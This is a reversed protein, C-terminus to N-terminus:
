EPASVDWIKITNGFSTALRKGDPSFIVSMVRADGEITTRTKGRPMEWIRVTGKLDGSALLKGDPNYALASVVDAHGKLVADQQDSDLNWLVIKEGSAVALMKGDPHFASKLV